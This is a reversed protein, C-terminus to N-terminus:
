EYLSVFIGDFEKESIKRFRSKMWEEVARSNEDMAGDRSWSGSILVIKKDGLKKVDATGLDIEKPNRHERKFINHWYGDQAGSIYFYYEINWHNVQPFDKDHRRFYYALPEEIGPTTLAIVHDESNFKDMLYRAIPRFPKKIYAGQHYMTPLTLIDRYYNNISSGMLTFFCFLCVFRLRGSRIGEIGLSLFIYYLPSFVILQRDLYIPILFSFLFIILLSAGLLVSVIVTREKFRGYGFRLGYIFASFFLVFSLIAAGKDATYGVNFNNFTALLSYLSPRQIWFGEKVCTVCKLFFNIIVPYSLIGIPLGVILYARIWKNFYGRSRKMCLLFLQGIAFVGIFYSTFFGLYTVASLGMWYRNKDEELARIFFYCILAAFVPTLAYPRIEQAYWIHFPSFAMIFGAWIGVKRSFLFCGLRYLAFISIVSFIVSLLRMWFETHPFIGMWSKLLIYYFPPQASGFEAIGWFDRISNSCFWYSIAEDYWLDHSGLRFLRLGIGSFLILSLPIIKSAKM